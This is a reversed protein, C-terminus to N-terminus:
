LSMAPPKAEYRSLLMSCACSATFMSSGHLARTGRSCDALADHEKFM